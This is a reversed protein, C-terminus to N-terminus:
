RSDCHRFGEITRPLTPTSAPRNRVSAFAKQDDLRSSPLNGVLDERRRPGVDHDTGHEASDTTAGLREGETALACALSLIRAGELGAM